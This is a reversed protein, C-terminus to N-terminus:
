CVHLASRGYCAKGGATDQNAMSDEITQPMAPAGATHDFVCSNRPPLRPAWGQMHLVPRSAHQVRSYSAAQSGAVPMLQDERGAGLAKADRAQVWDNGTPLGLQVSGSGVARLWGWGGILM